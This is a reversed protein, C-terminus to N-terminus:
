HKGSSVSAHYPVAGKYTYINHNLKKKGNRREMNSFKHEAKMMM